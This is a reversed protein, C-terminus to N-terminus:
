GATPPGTSSCTSFTKTETWTPFLAQIRPADGAPTGHESSAWWYSSWPRGPSSSLASTSPSSGQAPTLIGTGPFPALVSTTITSSQTIVTVGTVSAMAFYANRGVAKILVDRARGAMPLKLLKGPCRDAVLILGAGIVITFLPGPTSSVHSTAHFVAHEM